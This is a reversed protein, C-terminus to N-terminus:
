QSEVSSANNRTKVEKKLAKHKEFKTYWALLGVHTIAGSNNKDFNNHDLNICNLDINLICMENCDFLVNSSDENFYLMNEDAYM